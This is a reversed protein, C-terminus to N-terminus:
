IRWKGKQNMERDEKRKGGRGGWSKNKLPHPWLEFPRPKMVKMKYNSFKEMEKAKSHETFKGVKPPENESIVIEKEKRQTPKAAM